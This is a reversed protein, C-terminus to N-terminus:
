LDFVDEVYRNTYFYVSYPIHHIDYLPVFNYNGNHFVAPDQTEANFEYDPNGANFKLLPFSTQNECALVIPGYMLGAMNTIDPTYEVRLSFPMDVAVVDGKKWFRQITAYSGPNVAINQKDGNVAISYGKRIWYPIRIKMEFEGEGQVIELRTNQKNPFGTEQRIVLNMAKWTLESPIFLNVWLTADKHFYISSGYKTHNEMGTGHCCTFNDYDNSYEKIAGPNLPYMYTVHSHESEPDQSGLIHNYLAREYYDMYSAEPQFRFLNEALKLMNYTCCTETTSSGLKSGIQYPPMFREGISTGGTIYCHAKTVMDFFNRAMNYYDKEGTVEYIKLAGTMKPINTNAHLGPKGQFSITGLSDCYGLMPRFVDDHDFLKAATLYVTNGTIQYLTALSENFGGYEGANWDMNNWFLQLQGHNFNRLKLYVWEGMGKAVELATTNGLYKYCDLLGALTKHITYLPAWPTQLKLLRNIEEEPFASLYGTSFGRKEDLKQCKQLENIIYEAKEKYKIDGTSAYAQSLASLFHGLSHGRVGQDPAEWGGVPQAGKTSLGYNVRWTYLMRDADLFNLYNLTRNMNETFRSNTLRIDQLSFPEALVTQTLCSASKIFFFFSVLLGKMGFCKM